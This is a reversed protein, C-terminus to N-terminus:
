ERWGCHQGHLLRDGDYHAGVNPRRDGVGQNGEGLGGIPIYESPGECSGGTLPLLM